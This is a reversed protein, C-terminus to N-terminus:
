QSWIPIFNFEIGMSKPIWKWVTSIEKFANACAIKSALKRWLASVKLSIWAAAMECHAPGKAKSGPPLRMYWYVRSIIPSVPILFGLRSKAGCIWPVPHLSPLSGFRLRHLPSQTSPLSSHSHSNYNVADRLSDSLRCLQYCCCRKLPSTPLLSEPFAQPM